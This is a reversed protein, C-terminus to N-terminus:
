GVYIDAEKALYEKLQNRIRNLRTRVKGETAGFRRAIDRISDFFWYRRLFMNRSEPDLTWLFEELVRTLERGELRREVSDQSPLCESLEEFSVTLFARKAANRQTLRKMSLNRTIAATYAGLKEPREPPITQWLAHWTDSVCEEADEDNRLLNMAIGRCLPGFKRAAAEIAQESRQWFLELIQKDDM